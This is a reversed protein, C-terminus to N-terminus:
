SYFGFIKEATVWLVCATFEIHQQKAHDMPGFTPRSHSCVPIHRRRLTPHRSNMNPRILRFRRYSTTSYMFTRTRSLIAPTSIRLFRRPPLHHFASLCPPASYCRRRLLEMEGAMRYTLPTRCLLPTIATCVLHAGPPPCLV